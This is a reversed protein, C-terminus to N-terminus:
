APNDAYSCVDDHRSQYQWAMQVLDPLSRTQTKEMVKARHNEVTRDSINLVQAIMKNTKGTILMQMVERERATLSDFLDQIKRRSSDKRRVHAAVDASHLQWTGGGHDKAYRLAEEADLMTRDSSACTHAHLAVGISTRVQIKKGHVSLPRSITAALSAAVSLAEQEGALDLLAIAFEDGGIRGIAGARPIAHCIREATEGLVIDGARSGHDANISRFHDLGAILLGAQGTDGRTRSILSSLDACFRLRDPLGTLADRTADVPPEQRPAEMLLAQRRTISAEVANRIEESSWPKPMFRFIEATNIAGRMVDFDSAASLMLRIAGPQITKIKTLLEVGSMHPMRYDSIIIDFGTERCQQLAKLPDTCMEIFAKEPGLWRLLGRKLSKLVNAEDDVLLLRIM